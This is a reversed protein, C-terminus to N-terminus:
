TVAADGEFRKTIVKPAALAVGPLGIDEVTKLEAV